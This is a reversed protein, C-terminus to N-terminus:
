VCGEGGRVGGGSECELSWSIKVSSRWVDGEEGGWVRGAREKELSLSRSSSWTRGRDGRGGEDGGRDGIDKDTDGISPGTEGSESSIDSAGNDGRMGGEDGRSAGKDDMGTGVGEGSVSTGGGRARSSAPSSPSTSISRSLTDSASSGPSIRGTLGVEEKGAWIIDSGSGLGSDLIVNITSCVLGRPARDTDGKDASISEAGVGNGTPRPAAAPNSDFGLKSPASAV